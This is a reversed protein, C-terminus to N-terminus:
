SRAAGRTRALALGGVLVGLAGLVLAVVSLVPTGAEDSAAGETADDTAAGDTAAGDTATEDSTAEGTAAEVVEVAPAPAALDDPDQGEEPIEVWATEGESCTQVTPFYLTQGAADEPLRVSVDLALRAQDPLPEQATYIVEGVRAHEGAPETVLEMDWGAAPTPNVTLIDDPITIAIQTTPSGECGHTASFTLLANSGAEPSPTDVHVHASAATPILLLTGGLLAGVM